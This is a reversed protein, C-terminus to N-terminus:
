MRWWSRQRERDEAESNMRAVSDMWEKMRRERREDETERRFEIEFGFLKFKM